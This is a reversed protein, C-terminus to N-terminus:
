RTGGLVRISEARTEAAAGYAAAAIDEAVDWGIRDGMHDVARAVSAMGDAMASLRAAERLRADMRDNRWALGTLGVWVVCTVIHWAHGTPLAASWASSVAMFAYAVITFRHLNTM